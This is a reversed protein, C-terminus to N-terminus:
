SQRFTKFRLDDFLWFQCIVSKAFIPDRPSTLKNFICSFDKLHSTMLIESRHEIYIFDRTRSCNYFGVGYITVITFQLRPMHLISHDIFIISDTDMNWGLDWYFEDTFPRLIIRELVHYRVKRYVTTLTTQIDGWSDISVHMDFNGSFPTCYVSTVRPSCECLTFIWMSHINVYLSYECLTFSYVAIIMPPQSTLAVIYKALLHIHYTSNTVYPVCRWQVHNQITSTTRAPHWWTTWLPQPMLSLHNITTCTTIFSWVVPINLHHLYLVCTTCALFMLASMPECPSLINMWRWYRLCPWCIFVDIAMAVEWFDCPVPPQDLSGSFFHFLVLTHRVVIHWLLSIPIRSIRIHDFLDLFYCNWITVMIDTRLWLSYVFNNM